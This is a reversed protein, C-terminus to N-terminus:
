LQYCWIVTLAAKIFMFLNLFTFTINLKLKKKPILPVYSNKQTNHQTINNNNNISNVKQHHNKMVSMFYIKYTDSKNDHMLKYYGRYPLFPTLSHSFLNMNINCLVCCNWSGCVGFCCCYHLVGFFYLLLIVCVCAGVYVHSNFKSDCLKRASKM